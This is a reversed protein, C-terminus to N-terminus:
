LPNFGYVKKESYKLFTKIYFLQRGSVSKGNYYTKTGVPSKSGVSVPYVNLVSLLLGKFMLDAGGSRM